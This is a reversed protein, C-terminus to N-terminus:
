NIVMIIRDYRCLGAIDAPGGPQIQNVYVGTEFVGDSLSLGFGASHCSRVLQVDILETQQPIMIEKVHKLLQEKLHPRLRERLPESDSDQDSSGSHNALETLKDVFNKSKLLTDELQQLIAEEMQLNLQIRRAGDPSKKGGITDKKRERNLSGIIRPLRSSHNSEPTRNGNEIPSPEPYNNYHRKPRVIHDDYITEDDTTETFSDRKTIRVGLPDGQPLGSPVGGNKIIGVKDRMLERIPSNRGKNPPSYRTRNSPSYRDSDSYRGAKNRTMDMGRPSHRM